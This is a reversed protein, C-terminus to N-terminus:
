TVHMSVKLMIFEVRARCPRNTVVMFVLLGVIIYMLQGFIVRKFFTKAVVVIFYAIKLLSTRARSLYCWSACSVRRTCVSCYLRCWVVGLVPMFVGVAICDVSCCRIAVLVVVIISAAVMLVGWVVTDM